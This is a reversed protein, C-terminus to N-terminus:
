SKTVTTLHAKLIKSHLITNFHKIESYNRSSPPAIYDMAGIKLAEDLIASGHKAYASMIIVPIDYTGNIKELFTLGDIQPMELDLIIVDPKKHKLSILAIHGNSSLNIIECDIFSNIIQELFIQIASSDNIIMVKIKEM